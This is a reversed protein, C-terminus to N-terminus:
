RGRRLENVSHRNVEDVVSLLRTIAPQSAASNLQEAAQRPDALNITVNAELLDSKKLSILLTNDVTFEFNLDRFESALEEFLVVLAPKMLKAVVMESEGCVEYIRNFSQSSSQWREGRSSGGYAYIYADVAIDITALIATRYFHDYVIEAKQYSRWKEDYYTRMVIRENVWHFQILQYPLDGTKLSAVGSHLSTVERMHDGRQFEYYRSALDEAYAEPDIDNETLNMLNAQYLDQLDNQAQAVRRIRHIVLWGCTIGWGLAGAWLVVVLGPSVLSALLVLGMSGAIGLVCNFHNFDLTETEEAINTLLEALERNSSCCAIAGELQDLSTAIVKNTM